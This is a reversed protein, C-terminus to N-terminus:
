KRKSDIILQVLVTLVNCKRRPDLNSKKCLHGEKKAHESARVVENFETTTTVIFDEWRLYIGVIESVFNSQFRGDHSIPV